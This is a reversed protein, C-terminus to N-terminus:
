NPVLIEERKSDFAVPHPNGMAPTPADVPASRIRRLPAADGQADPKHVTVTHNGFNATWLEDHVVDIFVGVPYKIL